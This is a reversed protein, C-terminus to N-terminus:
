SKVSLPVQSSGNVLGLSTPQHGEGQDNLMKSKSKSAAYRSLKKPRKLLPSWDPDSNSKTSKLPRICSYILSSAKFFNHYIDCFPPIWHRLIMKLWKFCNKSKTSIDTQKDGLYFSGHPVKLFKYKWSIYRLQSVTWLCNDLGLGLGCHDGEGM